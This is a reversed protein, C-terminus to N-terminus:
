IQYYTRGGYMKKRLLGQELQPALFQEVKDSGGLQFTRDIDNATCPRRKLMEVIRDLLEDESFAQVPEIEKETERAKESDVGSALLDVPRDPNDRLFQEQIAALRERDLPRAYAELPPRAVTNLQVRDVRMKSVVRLLAAIDEDSDNVGGALLIELWIKGRYEHSFTILGHIIAELDLCRAPRDIKRFSEPLASDLSPVVVDALALDKRVGADDLTTGNTLVAIPKAVTKKLHRLVAGFGSHLTPEGTATVTIFDLRDVRQQDSCYEDIDALIDATPIYEDRDCTLRKTAGVECYICNLNCVKERFLDVGLSCGLRRSNVPGFIHNM